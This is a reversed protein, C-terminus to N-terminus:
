WLRYGLADLDIGSATLAERLEVLSPRDPDGSSIDEGVCENAFSPWNGRVGPWSYTIQVAVCAGPGNLEPMPATLVEVLQEWAPGTALPTAGVLELDVMKDGRPGDIRVAVWEEPLPERGGDLVPARTLGGSLRDVVWGVADSSDLGGAIRLGPAQLELWIAGPPASAVLARVEADDVLRTLLSEATDTLMVSLFASSESAAGLQVRADPFLELARAATGLATDSLWAHGWETDFGITLRDASLQAAVTFQDLPEKAGAAAILEVTERWDGADISTLEVEVAPATTVDVADFHFRASAVQELDELQGVLTRLADAVQLRETTIRQGESLDDLFSCGGLGAALVLAAAALLRRRPM